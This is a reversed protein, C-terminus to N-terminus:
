PTKAEKKSNGKNANIMKSSPLGWEMCQIVLMELVDVLIPPMVPLTKQSYYLCNDQMYAALKIDHNKTSGDAMGTSAKLVNDMKTSFVLSIGISM